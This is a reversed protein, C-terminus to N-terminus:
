PQSKRENIIKARIQSALYLSGCILIIDDDCAIGRARNLAIQPDNCVEVCPFVAKALEGLEQATMKRPNDPETTIVVAPIGSLLRLSASVDKDALMGIIMIIRKGNQVADLHERLARIGDPNHAGDLLIAPNGCICETRAPQFANAIGYLEAEPSIEVGSDRLAKIAAAAVATNKIQHKGSLRMKITKGSYSIDMGDINEAIIRITSSNARYIINNKNKAVQEIVNNVADEQPLYVTKGDPKIIGAKEFAIQEVTNGLVAVHDLSISTIVSCLPSTIINTSDLRGGLGTELVVYDCNKESFWKLAIATIFEFETIIENNEAMKQVYPYIKEVIEAFENEPIMEGNIQMRERFDIIYPSIFLGTKYGQRCLVSSLMACVSGKGNTGAVHIFKLNKDPRGILEVLKTVRELGPKSGFRLLNNIKEMVQEYTM